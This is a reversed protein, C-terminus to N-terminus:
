PARDVRDGANRKRRGLATRCVTTTGPTAVAEARELGARRASPQRTATPITPSTPVIATSTRLSVASTREGRSRAHRREDDERRDRVEAQPEHARARERERERRRREIERADHVDEMM